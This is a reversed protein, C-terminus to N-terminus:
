LQSSSRALALLTDVLCSEAGVSIRAEFTNNVVGEILVAVESCLSNIVIDHVKHPTPLIKLNMVDIIGELLVAKEAVVRLELVTEALYILPPKKSANNAKSPV